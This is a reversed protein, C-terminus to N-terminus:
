RAGDQWRARVTEGAHSVDVFYDPVECAADRVSPDGSRVIRVGELLGMRRYVIWASIPRTKAGTSEKFAAVAPADVYAPLQRAM